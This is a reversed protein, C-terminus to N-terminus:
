RRVEAITPSLPPQSEYESDALQIRLSALARFVNSRVTNEGSDLVEAIERYSLGEYFRLVVAARQKPPLLRLEQVLRQHEAHADAHDAVPALLTALDARVTLRKLRRRWGLFENVVMRRVYAHVNDARGVTSWQEFATGIVNSVIEDALAPDGTLVVAFRFLAPRREAVYRELEVLDDEQRRIV